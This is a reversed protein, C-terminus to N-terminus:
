FFLHNFTPCVNQYKHYKRHKEKVNLHFDCDGIVFNCVVCAYEYLCLTIVALKKVNQEQKTTVFDDEDLTILSISICERDTIIIITISNRQALETLFYGRVYANLSESHM